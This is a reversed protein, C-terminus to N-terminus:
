ALKSPFRGRRDTVAKESSETNGTKTHGQRMEAELWEMLGNLRTRFAAYTYKDEILRKGAAGLKMRLDKDELLRLMAGSFAECTPEALMAVRSDIVQAHTLLATALLPKGSHLYSYIKMPTNQGKLRPSVLIDAESLFEALRELPKPGLFHVKNHIGKEFSKQQYKQIDPTQGGIIVLDARDTKQQVLAFSELLLDVGQYPELNGVYMVVLGSIGLETKM